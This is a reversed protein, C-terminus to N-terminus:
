RKLGASSGASPPAWISPGAYLALDLQPGSGSGFRCSLCGRLYGSYM